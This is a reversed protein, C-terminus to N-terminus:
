RPTNVPLYSAFICIRKMWIHKEEILQAWTWDYGPGVLFTEWQGPKLQNEADAKDEEIAEGHTSGEDDSNDSESENRVSDEDEPGLLLRRLATIAMHSWGQKTENNENHSQGDTSDEADESDSDEEFSDDSGNRKLHKTLHSLRM